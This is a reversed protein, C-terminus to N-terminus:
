LLEGSFGDPHAAMLFGKLGEHDVVLSRNQRSILHKQTFERLHETVRPRSAGVLEALDGHRVPVTLRVGGRLNSVGFNESLECLVLALREALTCGLFNSRRLQVRDWRGLFSAALRKFAASGIGLCIKVFSNLGITGVECSTVADCRFNYTIGTVATPFAPILGPAVMIVTTRRGKRNDCTIRAVGSLLIYASESLSKDSFITSRKEHRTVTLADALKELQRATLWSISALAKLSRVRRSRASAVM